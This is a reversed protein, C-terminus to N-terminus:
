HSPAVKRIRHNATDAIYLSSGGPGVAVGYPRNLQAETAAEGDGSYGSTGNGAVTTIIGDPGVARVHHTGRDAIYLSGDSGLAVGAPLGLQAETALGGDGSYGAAGNGAVTTIIGDLWVRRVHRTGTDAFYLSGDPGRAVGTPYHIEAETAPGGDGGFGPTGNGAMTTIIGDPDVRRIRYNYTDAIYVSGDHGLAVGWPQNLRAVTAPGGDGYFGSAGNGAVTTIIGDPGVRRIRHNATDAIYLSGDPGAAVGYPRNLQAKTALDGDGSVGATGIGAVTTIIGDPGLRRIRNNAYDAIYFGGDPALAVGTPNNFQADTALGGDGSFGREGTGAVTEIVAGVFGPDPAAGGVSEDGTDGAADEPEIPSESDARCHRSMASPSAKGSPGTPGCRGMQSSRADAIEFPVRGDAASSPVSLPLTALLLFCVAVAPAVAGNKTLM